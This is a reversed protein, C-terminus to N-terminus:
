TPECGRCSGLTLAELLSLLILHPLRIQGEHFEIHFGSFNVLFLHLWRLCCWVRLSPLFTLFRLDLEPPRWPEVFDWFSFSCSLVRLRLIWLRTPTTHDPLWTPFWAERGHPRYVDLVPHVKFSLLKWHKSISCWCIRVSRVVMLGHPLWVATFEDFGHCFFDLTVSFISNPIQHWPWRNWFSDLNEQCHPCHLALTLNCSAFDVFPLCPEVNITGFLLFSNVEPFGEWRNSVPCGDSHHEDSGQYM